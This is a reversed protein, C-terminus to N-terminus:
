LYQVPMGRSSFCFVYDSNLEFYGDQMMIVFAEEPDMKGVAMDKFLEKDVISKERQLRDWMIISDNEYSTYNPLMKQIEGVLGILQDETSHNKTIGTFRVEQLGYAIQNGKDPYLHAYTNWTTQVTKHGLRESIMLINFGMEILLSAHSHRLDHIRIAELEAMSAVRKIEKILFAKTFMFIRDSSSLGYLSNTYSIVEEYLFQPIAVIRVSTENKPDKIIHEGDVVAFNKDINLKFDPLFDGPTLALLEGERIGTWFLINFAMRAMSKDCYGIFQEYQSLTWIKMADADSKGMSGARQCPNYPLKYYRCAYNLIASLENNISKLYTPAYGITPYKDYGMKQIWTQWNLVDLESIENIPKQNFYSVLLNNFTRKKRAATTIAIKKNDILDSLYNETLAAFTINASQVFRNKFDREFNDADKKKSFGRKVKQKKAGMWDRYKFRSSWTGNSEKYAPM